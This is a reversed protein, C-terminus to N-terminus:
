VSFGGHANIVAVIRPLPVYRYVFVGPLVEDGELGDIPGHCCLEASLYPGALCRPACGHCDSAQVSFTTGDACLVPPLTKIPAVRQSESGRLHSQLLEVTAELPEFTFARQFM